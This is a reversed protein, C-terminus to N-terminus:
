EFDDESFEFEEFTCEIKFPIDKESEEIYVESYFNKWMELVHEKSYFKSIEKSNNKYGFKTNNIVAIKM